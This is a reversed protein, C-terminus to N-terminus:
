GASRIRIGRSSLGRFQINKPRRAARQPASRALDAHPRSRNRNPEVDQFSSAKPATSVECSCLPPSKASWCRSNHSSRFDRHPAGVKRPLTRRCQTERDGGDGIKKPPRVALMQGLFIRDPSDLKNLNAKSSAVRFRSKTSFSPSSREM